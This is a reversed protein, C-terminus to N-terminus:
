KKKNTKYKVSLEKKSCKPEFNKYFLKRLCRLHVKMHQKLAVPPNAMRRILSSADFLKDEIVKEVVIAWVYFMDDTHMDMYKEFYQVYRKLEGIPLESCNLDCFITLDKLM